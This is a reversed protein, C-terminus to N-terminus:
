ICCLVARLMLFIVSDTRRLRKGGLVPVQINLTLIGIQITNASLRKSGPRVAPPCWGL